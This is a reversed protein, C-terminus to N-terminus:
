TSPSPLGAMGLTIAFRDGSRNFGFMSSPLVRLLKLGNGVFYLGRFSRNKV